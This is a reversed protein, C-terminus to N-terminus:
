SRAPPRPELDEAMAHLLARQAVMALELDPAGGELLDKYVVSQTVSVVLQAVDAVAFHVRVSGTSVAQQLLEAWLAVSREHVSGRAGFLVRHATDRERTVFTTFPEWAVLERLHQNGAAVFREVGQETRAAFATRMSREGARWLLDAILRDRGSLVRYLTARSIALSGALAELDVTSTAVFLRTAHRLADEYTVVRSSV